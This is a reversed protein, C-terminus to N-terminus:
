GQGLGNAPEPGSAGLAPARRPVTLGVLLAVLLAVPFRSMTQCRARYSPNIWPFLGAVALASIPMGIHSYDPQLVGQLIVLTIFLVPGIIGAGAFRALNAVAPPIRPTLDTRGPM